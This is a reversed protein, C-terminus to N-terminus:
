ARDYFEGSKKTEWRKHVLSRWPIDKNAISKNYKQNKKVTVQLKRDHEYMHKGVKPEPM